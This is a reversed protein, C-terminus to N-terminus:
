RPRQEIRRAINRGFRNLEKLKKMTIIQGTKRGIRRGITIKNEAEM